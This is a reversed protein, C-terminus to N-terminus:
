YIKNVTVTGTGYLGNYWNTSYTIADNSIGYTFGYGRIATSPSQTYLFKARDTISDGNRLVIAIGTYTSDIKAIAAALGDWTATISDLTTFVLMELFRNDTTTVYYCHGGGGGGGAVSLVGNLINLGSGVKIGGLTEASAPPLTYPTPNTNSLVDGTMTLGSGVKVGGKTEASATPLEYQSGGGGANIADGITTREGNKKIFPFNFPIPFM